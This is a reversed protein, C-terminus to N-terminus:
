ISQCRGLDSTQCALILTGTQADPSSNAGYSFDIVANGTGAQSGPSVTLWSTNSTATWPGNAVLSVSGQGPSNGM